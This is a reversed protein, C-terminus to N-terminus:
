GAISGPDLALLDVTTVDAVRHLTPDIMYVVAHGAEPPSAGRHYHVDDDGRVRLTRVGFPEERLEPARWRVLEAVCKAHGTHGIM